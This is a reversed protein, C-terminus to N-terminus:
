IATKMVESVWVTPTEYGLAAESQKSGIFPERLSRRFYKGDYSYALQTDLLGGHFKAGYSNEHGRYMHVVGIYVGEYNFAKMGYVESLPEDGSDAQLCPEFPSLSMFDKTTSVGVHRIGWFPRIYLNYCKKKEDFVASMLPEAGYAWVAGSKKKWSYLDESVYVDDSVSLSEGNYSSIFMKYRESKDATKDEIVGAIESNNLAILEHPAVRNEVNTKDAVNEPSFHIGDTSCAMFCRM